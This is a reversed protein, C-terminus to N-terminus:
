YMSMSGTVSVLRPIVIACAYADEQTICARPETAQDHVFLSLITESAGSYLSRPELPTAFTTRAASM